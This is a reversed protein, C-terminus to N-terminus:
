PAKLELVFASLARSEQPELSGPAHRPMAAQIYARLAARNRFNRLTGPGRLPPAEGIAFANGVAVPGRMLEFSGSMNAQRDPNGPKHCSECRRHDEPFALRAEELGGGTEGHCVACRLAFVARGREVLTGTPEPKAAPKAALLGATLFVTAALVVNQKMGGLKGLRVGRSTQM